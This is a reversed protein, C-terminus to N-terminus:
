MWLRLVHSKYTIRAFNVDQRSRSNISKGAKKAECLSRLKLSAESTEKTSLTPHATMQCSLHQALKVFSLLNLYLWRRFEQRTLFDVCWGSKETLPFAWALFISFVTTSFIDSTLFDDHKTQYMCLFDGPNLQFNLFQILCNSPCFLSHCRIKEIKM